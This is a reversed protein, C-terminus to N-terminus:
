IDAPTTDIIVLLIRVRNMFCTLNTCRRSARDMCAMSAHKMCDMSACAMSACKMCEMSACKMCVTRCESRIHGKRGCHFCTTPERFSTKRQVHTSQRPPAFLQEREKQDIKPSICSNQHRPPLLDTSSYLLMQDHGCMKNIM